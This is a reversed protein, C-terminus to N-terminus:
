RVRYLGRLACPVGGCPCWQEDVLDVRDGPNLFALCLMELLNESGNGMVVQEPTMGTRAAIVARLQLSAPDPYCATRTVETRLAADALPSMGLPNENSALRAIYTVAFRQHVADDSLGSNYRGLQRAERRALREITEKM